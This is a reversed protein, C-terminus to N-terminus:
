RGGSFQYMYSLMLHITRKDSFTGTTILDFGFSNKGMRYSTGANVSILRTESTGGPLAFQSTGNGNSLTVVGGSGSFKSNYIGLGASWDWPGNNINMGLPLLLHWETVKGSSGTASRTLLTYTLRPAFFLDKTVTMEYEILLPYVATGLVSKAGTASQTIKGLVNESQYGIGASFSKAVFAKSSIAMLYFLLFLSVPIKM